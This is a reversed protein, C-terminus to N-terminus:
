CNKVDSVTDLKFDNATSFSVEIRWEVKNRLFEKNLLFLCICFRLVWATKPICVPAGYIRCWLGRIEM